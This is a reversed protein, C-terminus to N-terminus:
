RARANQTALLDVSAGTLLWAAFARQALPPRLSWYKAKDSADGIEGELVGGTTAKTNPGAIFDPADLGLELFM